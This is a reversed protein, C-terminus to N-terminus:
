KNGDKHNICPYNNPNPLFTLAVLRHVFYHKKNGNEDCLHVKYYGDQNITQKLEKNKHYSNGCKRAISIVRGYNSIRYRGEYGSIEKFFEM